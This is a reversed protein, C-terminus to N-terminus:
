LSFYYFLIFLIFIKNITTEIFNFYFQQQKSLDEPNQRPNTHYCLEDGTSHYTHLMLM